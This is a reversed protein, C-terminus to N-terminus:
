EGVKWRPLIVGHVLVMLLGMAGFIGWIPPVGLWIFVRALGSWVGYIVFFLGFSIIAEVVWFWGPKQPKKGVNNM